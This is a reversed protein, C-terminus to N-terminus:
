ISLEQLLNIELEVVRDLSYKDLVVQRANDGLRQQLSQDGLIEQLAARIDVSATGCLLGTEHHNLVDSIGPVYTGIVPLGCSMAELLAKPHGESLSPLIFITASNIIDPLQENSLNGLFQVSLNLQAARDELTKKLSGSGIMVLEIDLGDCGDLLAMLNKIPVLRGIFCVRNPIRTIQLNPCFLDTDVYNPIVRVKESSVQYNTIIKQQMRVTTIVVRDAGNFVHRELTQAELAQPSDKGYDLEAIETQLYGCRAIFKRRFRRAARMAIDAGLVQNSKIM